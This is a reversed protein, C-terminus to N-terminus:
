LDLTLPPPPAASDSPGDVDLLLYGADVPAQGFFELLDRRTGSSKEMLRVFLNPDIGANM